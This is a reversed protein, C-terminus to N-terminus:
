PKFTTVLHTIWCRPYHNNPGTMRPARHHGIQPLISKITGNGQDAFLGQGGILARGQGLGPELTLGIGFRQHELGQAKIALVLDIQPETDM